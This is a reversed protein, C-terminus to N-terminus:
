EQALDEFSRAEIFSRIDNLQAPTLKGAFSPMGNAALAGNLVVAAFAEGPVVGSARLDPYAGASVVGTGHCRLCYRAYLQNGRAISAEDAPRASVIARSPGAPPTFPPLVEKGDLKFVLLRNPGVVKGAQLAMVGGTLPWGGGWGSLVAIYQVGDIAYSIPPAIVATQADFSWLKAGSKADYAALERATNGAFVLGGGTALVGGNFPAVQNVRWAEKQRVPDWAILYGKMGAYLEDRQEKTMAGGGDMAVGSTYAGIVQEEDAAAYPMGVDQAPIYVLGTDPSFAMPPWNHGGGSSPFQFSPEGTRYYRASPAEIPRGTKPDLGTAWTVNVFPKGSIFDGTERDLVYFFGNKPAQMLVKRPKGDIELDALIINQTATYDWSDAPTTQFHWRYAGTKADLAVISSLFLNDGKGDSRMQHNWPSGNGVGIYVLGLEPDYEIADWATGGGGYKWWDGAWTEAAMDMANDSAAHDPVGPKGPVTYFRWAQEGSNVKYATVFGRVGFEAGGNGILVLDGVVRPAGTITYNVALPDAEDITQVEWVVQGSKADLAILRGDLAGLFVKGEHVAVGRSVPGCCGRASAARVQPDYEWLLEGSVADVAQVVDYASVLYLVGDVMIPTAEQGRDTGLDHAFALGLRDVNGTNIQELDTFRQATDDLGHLPWEADASQGSGCGALALALALGGIAKGLASTM